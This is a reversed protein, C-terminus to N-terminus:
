NYNIALYPMDCTMTLLEVHDPLIYPLGDIRDSYSEPYSTTDSEDDSFVNETDQSDPMDDETESHDPGSIMNDSYFRHLWLHKGNEYPELTDPNVPYDNYGYTSEIIVKRLTVPLVSEPVVGENYMVITEVSTLDSGAMIHSATSILDGVILTRVYQFASQEVLVHGHIEVTHVTAPLHGARIVRYGEIDKLHHNFLDTLVFHTARYHVATPTPSCWILEKPPRTLEVLENSWVTLRKLTEWPFMGDLSPGICQITLEELTLRYGKQVYDPQLLGGVWQTRVKDSTPLDVCQVPYRDPSCPHALTDNVIHYKGRGIRIQVEPRWRFCHIFRLPEQSTVMITKLARPYEATWISPNLLHQIYHYYPQDSHDVPNYTDELLVFDFGTAILKIRAADDLYPRIVRFVNKLAQMSLQSCSVNM